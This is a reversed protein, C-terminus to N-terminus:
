PWCCTWPSEFFPPASYNAAGLGSGLTTFLFFALLGKLMVLPMFGKGVRYSCTFPIRRWHLFLAEVLVAGLLVAALTTMLAAPGLVFWQLPLLLMAPLAVGLARLTWAAADLQDIRIAPRETMRFIWNARTEIPVLLSARVAVTSVFIVVFPAWVVSHVLERHRWARIPAAMAAPIDIGLLDNVVLAARHRLDHGAFGPAASQPAPDTVHLQARCSFGIRQCAPGGVHTGDGQRLRFGRAAAGSGTMTREFHWYLVLYAAASIGSAIVL